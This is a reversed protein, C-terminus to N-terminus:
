SHKPRGSPKSLVVTFRSYVWGLDGTAGRRINVAVRGRMSRVIVVERNRYPNGLDFVFGGYATYRLTHCISSGAHKAVPLIEAFSVGEPWLGREVRPRWGVM